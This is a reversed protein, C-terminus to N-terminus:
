YFPVGRDTDGQYLNRSLIDGSIIDLLCFYRCVFRRCKKKSNKKRWKQSSFFAPSSKKKPNTSGLQFLNADVAYKIIIEEANQM